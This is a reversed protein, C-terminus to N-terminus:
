GEFRAGMLVTGDLGPVNPRLRQRQVSLNTKQGRNVVSRYVSGRSNGHKRDIYIQGKYNIKGIIVCKWKIDTNLHDKYCM